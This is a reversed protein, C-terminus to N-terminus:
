GHAPDEKKPVKIRSGLGEVKKAYEDLSIVDFYNMITQQPQQRKM